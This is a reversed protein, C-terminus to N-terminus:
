KVFNKIKKQATTYRFEHHKACYKSSIRPEKSFRKVFNAIKKEYGISFKITKRHNVTLIDSKKGSRDVFIAAQKQSKQLFERYKGRGNSSILSKERWWNACNAIKKGHCVLSNMKHLEWYVFFFTYFDGAEVFM